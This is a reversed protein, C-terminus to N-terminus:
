NSVVIEEDAKEDLQNGNRSIRTEQCTGFNMGKWHGKNTQKTILMTKNQADNTKM